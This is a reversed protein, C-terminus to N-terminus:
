RWFATGHDRHALHALEHVVVYDIASARAMVIRWNFGLVGSRTCPGWRRAQDKVVVGAPALGAEHAFHKM